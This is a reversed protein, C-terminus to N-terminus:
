SIKGREKEKFDLYVQSSVFGALILVVGAFFAKGGATSRFGRFGKLGTEENLKRLRISIIQKYRTNRRLSTLVYRHCKYRLLYDRVILNEGYLTSAPKVKADQARGHM